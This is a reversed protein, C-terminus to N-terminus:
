ESRGQGEAAVVRTPNGFLPLGHVTQPAGPGNKLLIHWGTSTGAATCETSREFSEERLGQGELCERAKDFDLTGCKRRAVILAQACSEQRM